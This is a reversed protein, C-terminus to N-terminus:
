LLIQKTIRVIEELEGPNKFRHDANEFYYLKHSKSAHDLLWQENKKYNVIEDKKGQLVHLYNPNSYSSLNLNKLDEYFKYDVILERGYGFNLPHSRFENETFGHESLLNVILIESMFIAPARLIVKDYIVNSMALKNLLLYGGFSTAFYSIPTNPYNRKVFNETEDLHKRCEDLSLVKNIKSEGHCPLDFTVTTINSKKLEEAVATIVSSECDGAFGHVAILIKDTQSAEFIKIHINNYELHKIM